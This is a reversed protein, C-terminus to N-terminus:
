ELDRPTFPILGWSNRNSPFKFILHRCIELFVKDSLAKPYNYYLIDFNETIHKASVRIKESM